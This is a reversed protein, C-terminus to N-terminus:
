DTKCGTLQLRRRLEDKISEDENAGMLTEVNIIITINDEFNNEGSWGDRYAQCIGSLSSKPELGHEMFEVASPSYGMVAKLVRWIDYTLRKELEISHRDKTEYEISCNTTGEDDTIELSLKYSPKMTIPEKHKHYQEIARDSDTEGETM